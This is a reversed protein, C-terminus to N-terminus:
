SELYNMPNKIKFFRTCDRRFVTKGPKAAVVAAKKLSEYM